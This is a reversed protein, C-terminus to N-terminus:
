LRSCIHAYILIYIIHVLVKLCSRPIVIKEVWAEEQFATRWLIFLWAIGRNLIGQMYSVHWHPCWFIWKTAWKFESDDNGLILLALGKQKNAQKNQTSKNRLWCLKQHLPMERLVELFLFIFLYVTTAMWYPFGVSREMRLYCGVHAWFLHLTCRRPSRLSSKLFTSANSCLRSCYSLKRSASFGHPLGTM